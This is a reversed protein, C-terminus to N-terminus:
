RAIISMDFKSGNSLVIPEFNVVRGRSQIDFKAVITPRYVMLPFTVEVTCKTFQHEGIKGGGPFEIDMTHTIEHEGASFTNTPLRNLREEVAKEYLEKSFEEGEVVRDEFVVSNSRLDILTPKKDGGKKGAKHLNIKCRGPKERAIIHFDPFFPELEFDSTVTTLHIRSDLKAQNRADLTFERAVFFGSQASSARVKEQFNIIENKGVKNKWNKAEFIFVAEYGSGHDIKVYVDIEHRVGHIKIIKRTEIEFNDEKLSPNSSLILKEILGIADELQKGKLNVDTM